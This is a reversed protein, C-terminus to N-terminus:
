AESSHKGAIFAKQIAKLSVNKRSVFVAALVSGELHLASLWASHIGNVELRWALRM